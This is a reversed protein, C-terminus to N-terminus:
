NKRLIPLVKSTRAIIHIAKKLQKTEVPVKPRPTYYTLIRRAAKDFSWLGVHIKKFTDIYKLANSIKETPLVLIAANAFYRYRHCQTMGKQWNSLKIEFARVTPKFIDIFDDDSLYYKNTKQSTWSISVMDAIGFGNIAIQRVCAIKDKRSKHHITMYQDLYAKAFQITFRMEPTIVGARRGPLNLEPERFQVKPIEYFKSTRM